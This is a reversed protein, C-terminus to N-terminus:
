FQSYSPGVNKLYKQEQFEFNNLVLTVGTSTTKIVAITMFCHFLKVIGNWSFCEDSSLEEVALNKVM